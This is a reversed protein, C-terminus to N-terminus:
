SRPALVISIMVARAAASDATATLGARDGAAVPSGSDTVLSAIRGGGAGVTQARESEGQPATWSTTSSSRDAWYSVVLSGSAGVTVAPTTHGTRSVTEAVSQVVAVPATASTGTYALLTVAAKSMDSLTLTLTRGADAATAVKQWVTTSGNAGGMARTATVTWGNGGDPTAPTVNSATTVFLLLADGEEVGAPVTVRFSTANANVASAGVYELSPAPAPPSVTVTQTATSTAGADDRVTLTVTYEGGQAYTHDARVGTATTGDGFDWAYSAVAGDPDTSGAGDATCSLDTCTVSPAATPAQNGVHPLNDGTYVFAGRSRWDIGDVQPGSVVVTTGAVPAGNSWDVRRLAGDTSSAVYLKGGTMFMGAVRSYDMGDVGRGATARLAGVVDSQAAFGRYYLTSDGSLTFYLRGRDFFMGTIRGVENHWDALRVIQDSGDVAVADGFTTGDFSRRTFSGDNYGTYVNGDIMVSGRSTGWDIGADGLTRVPTATTGDYYVDRLEDAGATTTRGALFVHGPLTGTRYPAPTFGGALPFFAIRARYEWRGIRDTDSGVWLGTPTALIDFVGVGRDRGPNWTLPLGSIPDLAAIGERAVAGAAARDGAFPNNQWRQHGGVYVAGGTAAVSYTTDGGTHNVWTPAIQTGTAATEWRVATDCLTTSGRYGGTTVVVFYTGDPSFDVDRMYTDFRTICAPAYGSTAWDALAAGAGTLDLLALQQRDAGTVSTFNGIAVLRKGDPTVDIKLVQLVGGRLPGAFPLSMYPDFAGTTANVTALAPQAQGAVTAFTGALWLRNGVLRLDKVRGDMAPARFTPVLAGNSLSLQAVRRSREGNVTTFSGGIYVSAGDAAPVLASVEEDTDPNADDVSPAFATSIAGTRANFAVLNNRTLVPGGSAAQVQTFQGGLIVTDGMQVIAKVSGDLVNPTYNAPDASVVATQAVTQGMAPAAAFTATGTALAAFAATLLTLRGRMLGGCTTATSVRRRGTQTPGAQRNSQTIRLRDFPHVRVYRRHSPGFVSRRHVRLTFM